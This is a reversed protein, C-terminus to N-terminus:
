VVAVTADVETRLLSDAFNRVMPEFITEWTECISGLYYQRDDFKEKPCGGLCNPLYRCQSCTSSAFPDYSPYDHAVPVEASKSRNNLIPFLNASANGTQELHGHAKSKIGLDHPCKYMEGDPGFIVSHKAVASCNLPLARPYNAYVFESLDIYSGLYDRFGNEMEDFEKPDVATRNVSTCADTYPSLAALYPYIKSGSDFWGRVRFHEVLEQVDDKNGKDLNLRLYQKVIGRLAEVTRCLADFSSVEHRSNGDKFHRRNNHNKALGDFSFQISGIENRLVFDRCEQPDPPWLTGNSVMSVSCRIKATKCYPWLKASLYDIAERNLMPEGGFWFHRELVGGSELRGLQLCCSSSFATPLPEATKVLRANLGASVLVDLLLHASPCPSDPDRVGIEVGEAWIHENVHPGSVIWGAEELVSAFELAEKETHKGQYSVVASYTHNHKLRELIGIQQAKTLARM